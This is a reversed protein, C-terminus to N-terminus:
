PVQSMLKSNIENKAPNELSEFNVKKNNAGRSDGHIRDVNVSDVILIDEFLHDRDYKM